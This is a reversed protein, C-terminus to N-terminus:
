KKERIKKIQLIVTTIGIILGTLLVGFEMYPTLTDIWLPTSLSGGAVTYGAPVELADIKKELHQFMDSIKKDM